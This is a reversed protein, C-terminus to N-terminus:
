WKKGKPPEWKKLTEVSEMNTVFMHYSDLRTKLDFNREMHSELMSYQCIWEM